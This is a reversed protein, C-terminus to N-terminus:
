NTSSDEPQNLLEAQPNPDRDDEKQFPPLSFFQILIILFFFLFASLFLASVRTSLKKNAARRQIRQSYYWQLDNLLRHLLARKAEETDAAGRQRELIAVHPLEAVRAEELRRELETELQEKTMVLSLLQEIEYAGRWSPTADLLEEVKAVAEPDASHGTGGTRAALYTVRLTSYFQDLLDPRHEESPDETPRAPRQVWDWLTQKDM